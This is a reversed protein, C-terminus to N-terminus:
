VVSKRDTVPTFRPVRYLDVTLRAPVFAPDLWKTEIEHALLGAVVRGHLSSPDWPGRCIPNPLYTDGARRFFPETAM